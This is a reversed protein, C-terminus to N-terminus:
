LASLYREPDIKLRKGAKANDPVGGVYLWGLLEETDALKHMKRVRTARTLPGTRWFVGWGADDLLLSLMHAVGAATADQEWKPVKSSSRRSAVVAILLEARLPKAAQGKDREGKKGSAAVLADGLRERAAGRLEILRWPRLAGHDAVRAAAEVLPLLEAHSPAATSVRSYSRREAVAKLVQSM